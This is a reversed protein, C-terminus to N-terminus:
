VQQGGQARIAPVARHASADRAPSILQVFRVVLGTDVLGTDEHSPRGPAKSPSPATVGTVHTKIAADDHM